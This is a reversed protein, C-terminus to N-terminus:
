EMLRVRYVKSPVSTDTDVVEMLNGSGPVDTQLPIWESNSLSYTWEISYQKGLISPWRLTVGQPPNPPSDSAHKHSLLKLVSRVDTPNTGAKYEAWNPVGDGDADAMAQSLLNHVSGFYRLRWHDPIEDQWFSANRDGLMILGPCEDQPFIGLGNPSASVHDFSIRYSSESTASNPISIVLTGVVCDGWIGEM